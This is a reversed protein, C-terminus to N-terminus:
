THKLMETTTLVTPAAMSRPPPSLSAAARRSPRLPNAVNRSTVSGLTADDIAALATMTNRNERVLKPTITMSPPPDTVVM